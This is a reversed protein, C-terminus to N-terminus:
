QPTTTIGKAEVEASGQLAELKALVLDLQARTRANEWLLQQVQEVNVNTGANSARCVRRAPLRFSNHDQRQIELYCELMTAAADHCNLLVALEGLDLPHHLEHDGLENRQAAKVM